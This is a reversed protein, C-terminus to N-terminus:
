VRRALPRSRTSSCIVGKRSTKTAPSGPVVRSNEPHEGWEVMAAFFSQWAKDLRILVQQSVKAPLARYEDTGQVRKAMTPYTIYKGQYIFSQRIIYNAKNYLNKAAFAAQDIPEYRSDSEKIIHQEVLQMRM